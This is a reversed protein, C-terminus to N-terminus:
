DGGCGRKVFGPFLHVLRGKGGGSRVGRPERVLRVPPVLPRRLAGGGRFLPVGDVGLRRRDDHPVSTPPRPVAAARAVPRHEDAAAAAAYRRSVEKRRGVLAVVFPDGLLRLVGHRGDSQPPPPPREHGASRRRQQPLRQQRGRPQQGGDEDRRAADSPLRLVVPVAQRQQVAAAVVVAAAAGSLCLEVNLQDGGGGDGGGGFVDNFPDLLVDLLLGVREFAAAAAAIAALDFAHRQDTRPLGTSASHLPLLLPFKCFSLVKWRLARKRM